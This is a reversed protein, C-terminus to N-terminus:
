GKSATGAGEKQRRATADIHSWLWVSASPPPLDHAERGAPTWAGAKGDLNANQLRSASRCACDGSILNRSLCRPRNHGNMWGMWGNEASGEVVLENCQQPVHDDVALKTGPTPDGLGTQAIMESYRSRRQPFRELNEGGFSEHSKKGILASRDDTDRTLLHLFDNGNESGQLRKGSFECARVDVPFFDDANPSNVRLHDFAIARAVLLGVVFEIAGDM